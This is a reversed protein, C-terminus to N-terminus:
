AGSKKAVATVRSVPIGRKWVASINKVADIYRTPDGEVLVLDARKGVRIEGRDNLHFAKAPASTGAILAEVPTLGDAVLLAMEDLTSAGYTSGPVPADTGVLIPVHADRLEKIAEDTAECSIPSKFRYFSLNRILSPFSQSKVRPDTALVTGDSRGCSSYQVTLTAIVFIHHQAAFRGFDPSAREGVFLHALGDVGANIALRANAETSIHAVALKGHRHAAAIVARVTAPSLTPILKVFGHWESNDELILKIYDSGEAVRAAVFAEAQAPSDITPFGGGGMDSPHGGTASAGLGASRMDAMGPADEKEIRKITKLTEQGTFMDLDTTVGLRASQILATRTKVHPVHVHADIIGPLLTKGRGDIVQAGRSTMNPGGIARIVGDTVLVSRHQFVRHGDFLRVDRILLPQAQDAPPSAASLRAVPGISGAFLLFMAIPGLHKANPM